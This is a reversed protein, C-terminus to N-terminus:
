TLDVIVAKPADGKVSEIGNDRAYASTYSESRGVPEGNAAKLVFTYSGNNEKREYRQDIPANRKVSAIGNECTQKAPYGESSLTIKGNSAILKFYYENNKSSKSLEFRPTTM